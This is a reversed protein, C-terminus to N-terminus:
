DSEHPADRQPQNYHLAVCHLHSTCYVDHRVRHRDDYFNLYREIAHLRSNVVSLLGALAVFIMAWAMFFWAQDPTFSTQFARLLHFAAGSVFYLACIWGLIFKWSLLNIYNERLRLNGWRVETKM